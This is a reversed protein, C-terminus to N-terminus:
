RKWWSPRAFVCDTGFIEAQRFWSVKIRAALHGNKPNALQSLQAATLNRLPISQCSFQRPGPKKYHRFGSCDMQRLLPLAKEVGGKAAVFTAITWVKPDEEGRVASFAFNITM